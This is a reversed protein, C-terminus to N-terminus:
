AEGVIRSESKWNNNEKVQSIIENLEMNNLEYIINSYNIEIKNYFRTNKQVILILFHLDQVVLSFIEWFYRGFFFFGKIVSLMYLGM